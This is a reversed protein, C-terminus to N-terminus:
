VVDVFGEIAGNVASKTAEYLEAAQEPTRGIATLGFRGDIALCSLMHLVVGTGTRHDFQLGRDAVAKIVFAPPLGLWAQDVLNDTACYSRTTGDSALWQGLEADYRGPVLNRLVAYPHTTGGKRLNVELAFVRWGGALDRAAAFDVSLRGVVGHSALQEGIAGGYRALDASYAPDAPFRCGVYVQGTEGALVQEHTSLVAVEGYPSVELQVSPSAFSDGAVLEEVVGGARLDRLYWDPLSTVRARLEEASARRSVQRLDIVANGDGAGSNDHKIVVGTAAPTAERIATVADVVDGVTRVAECGLPIPVGARTFLRRGASKYGLPWLAPATGNIPAGLRMAVEVELDTVNWPEIFVPRGAFSTRVAELVDPRDLLKAAISRPTDDPVALMRFRPRVGDRRQTPVLSTYYDLIEQGPTQSSLFVLECSRIRHLMLHSVLYRHELAPLRSAYHSLLTEALSFSPLAVLVHDVRAGPKNLALAHGLQAQLQEFSKMLVGSPHEEPIWCYACDVPRTRSPTPSLLRSSHEITKEAMHRHLEDVARAPLLQM